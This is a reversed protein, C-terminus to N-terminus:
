FRKSSSCNFVLHHRVYWMLYQDMDKIGKERQANFDKIRDHLWNIYEYQEEPPELIGKYLMWLLYRMNDIKSM